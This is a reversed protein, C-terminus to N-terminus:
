NNWYIIGCWYEWTNNDTSEKM